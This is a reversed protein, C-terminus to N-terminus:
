PASVFLLAHSLPHVHTIASPFKWVDPMEPLDGSMVKNNDYSYRVRAQTLKVFWEVPLDRM